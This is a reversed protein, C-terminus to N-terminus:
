GERTSRYVGDRRMVSISSEIRGGFPCELNSRPPPGIRRERVPIDNAPCEECLNLLGSKRWTKSACIPSNLQLFGDKIQTLVRTSCRTRSYFRGSIPADDVASRGGDESSETYNDELVDVFWRCDRPDVKEDIMEAGGTELLALLESLEPQSEAGSMWEPTGGMPENDIQRGESRELDIVSRLMEEPREILPGFSPDNKRKLARLMCIIQARIFQRERRIDEWEKSLKSYDRPNGLM